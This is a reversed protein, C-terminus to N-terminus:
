FEFSESHIHRLPVRLRRLCDTAATVFGPPGCLYVDSRTAEPVLERLRNGVFPDAASRPLGPLCHVTAGTRRAIHDLEASFLLEERQNARVLMTVEPAALQEFLARLPTIGVGGALLLVHRRTRRSATLAGYPGELLVRTGPRIRQLEASHDGLRKVTIRLLDERPGASLSFPHSQWWGSPTLFRWRFFQGPVARVLDPRRVRIVISAVGPAEPQVKVVRAGLQLALRIPQILRYWVLLLGVGAYMLAWALRALPHAVFDAGTSFQHSFALAVALYTYLHLLYWTEYRMRRRAARASVLGVGVLLLGAVTAMLVDPYSRLLTWGEGTVSAHATVAYGWTILVGHSAVLSVVYRGGAAHWRALRDAGLRHEIVPARSMLALLVIVGYGALLGAVRGAATLWAGAGSIVPSDHWWVLLVLLAGASIGAALLRRATDPSTGGGSAPRLRASAASITAM